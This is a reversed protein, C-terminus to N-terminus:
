VLNGTVCCGVHMTNKFQNMNSLCFQPVDIGGGGRQCIYLGSDLTLLVEDTAKKLGFVNGGVDRVSTFGRLLEDENAKAAYSNIYAMDSQFM